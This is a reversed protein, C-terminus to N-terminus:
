RATGGRTIRYLENEGDKYVLEFSDPNQRVIDMILQDILLDSASREINLTDLAIYDAHRALLSQVIQEKNAQGSVSSLPYWHVTRRAWFHYLYISRTVITSEPDTHEKTWLAMTKYANFGRDYYDFMEPDTRLISARATSFFNFIILTSILALSVTRASRFAEEVAPRPNGIKSYDLLPYALDSIRLTIQNLGQIFYYLILPIIPVLYRQFNGSNSPLFLFLLITYCFM